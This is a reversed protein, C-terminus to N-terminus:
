TWRVGSLVAVPRCPFIIGNLCAEGRPHEEHNCEKDTTSSGEGLWMRGESTVCNPDELDVRWSGRGELISRRNCGAGDASGGDCIWYEEVKRESAVLGSHRGSLGVM